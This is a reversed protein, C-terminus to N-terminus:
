LSFCVCLGKLIEAQKTFGKMFDKTQSYAGDSCYSVLVLANGRSDALCHAIDKMWHVSTSMIDAQRKWWCNCLKFASSWLYLLDPLTRLLLPLKM